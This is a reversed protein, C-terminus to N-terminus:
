RQVEGRALALASRATTLVPVFRMAGQGADVLADILNNCAKYLKPSAAILHANAKNVEDTRTLGVDFINCDAVMKGDGGLVVYGALDEDEHDDLSKWEGATWKGGGAAGGGAGADSTQALIALAIERARAICASQAAATSLADEAFSTGAYARFGKGWQTVELRLGFIDARLDGNDREKWEVGKTTVSAAPTPPNPTNDTTM